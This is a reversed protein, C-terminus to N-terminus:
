IYLKPQGQKKEKERDGRVAVSSPSVAVFYCKARVLVFASTIM